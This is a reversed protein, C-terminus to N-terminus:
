PTLEEGEPTTITVVKRPKVRQWCPGRKLTTRWNIRASETVIQAILCCDPLLRWFEWTKYAEGDVVIPGDYESIRM